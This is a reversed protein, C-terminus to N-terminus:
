GFRLLLIRGKCDAGTRGNKASVGIFFGVGHFRGMTPPTYLTAGPRGPGQRRTVLVSTRARKTMAQRQRNVTKIARQDPVGLDRWGGGEPLVTLFSPSVGHVGPDDAHRQCCRKPEAPRAQGICSLGRRRVLALDDFVDDDGGLFGPGLGHLARRQRDGRKRGPLDGLLLDGVDLVQHLVDGVELDSLRRGVGLDEDAADAAGIDEGAGIGVDGHLDVADIQGTGGSLEAVEQVHLPYLDQASRLAREIAAVGHAAREVDDRARGAVAEGALGRDGHAVVTQGLALGINATRQDGVM